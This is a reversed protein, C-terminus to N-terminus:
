GAIRTARVTVRLSDRYDEITDWDEVGAQHWDFYEYRFGAYDLMMDLAPRSPLGVLALRRPDDAARVASAPNDTDEKRIEIVPQDSACVGTDLILYKPVLEQISALLRAHHMTHYFFGFCFVTDVSGHPVKAIERHIDGTVFSIRGEPVGYERMTAEAREVLEPRAEIGLVHRAGGDYAAYSWRGDHSAIDLVSKGAICERNADIMAKYRSNLRNATSGVISTQYFRPHLDFFGAM